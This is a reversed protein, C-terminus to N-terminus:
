DGKRRLMMRAGHVAPQALERIYGRCALTRDSEYVFARTELSADRDFSTPERRRYAEACTRGM